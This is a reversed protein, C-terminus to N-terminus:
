PKDRDPNDGVVPNIKPHNAQRLTAVPPTQFDPHSHDALALSQGQLQLRAVRGKTRKRILEVEVPPLPANSLKRLLAASEALTFALSAEDIFTAMQKTKLRAFTFDSINRAILQFHVTSPLLLLLRNLSSGGWDTKLIYDLNDLFVITPETVQETLEYLFSDTLQIPDATASEEDLLHLTAPGFNPQALQLALILRHFFVSLPQDSRSLSYWATHWGQRTLQQALDAALATKGWGAGANIITANQSLGQQLQNLLRQRRLYVQPLVPPQLKTNLQRAMPKRKRSLRSEWIPPLSYPCVAM